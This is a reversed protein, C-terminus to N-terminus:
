RSKQKLSQEFELDVFQSPGNIDTKLKINKMVNYSNENFEVIIKKLEDNTMNNIWIPLIKNDDIIKKIQEVDVICASYVFDKDHAYQSAVYLSNAVNIISVNENGYIENIVGTEFFKGNKILFKERESM